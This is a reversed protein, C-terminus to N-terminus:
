PVHAHKLDFTVRKGGEDKNFTTSLASITIPVVKGSTSPVERTPAIFRAWKYPSSLVDYVDDLDDYDLGTSPQPDFLYVQSEPKFILRMRTRETISGNASEFSAVEALKDPNYAVVYLTASVAGSLATVTTTNVDAYPSSSADEDAGYLEVRWATNM